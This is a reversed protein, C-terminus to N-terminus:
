AVAETTTAVAGAGMTTAVAETTTVVAQAHAVSSARRSITTTRQDVIELIATMVRRALVVKAILLRITM